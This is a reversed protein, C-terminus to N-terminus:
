KQGSAKAKPSIPRQGPWKHDKRGKESAIPFLLKALESKGMKEIIEELGDYLFVVDVELKHPGTPNQKLREKVQKKEHKLNEGLPGTFLWLSQALKTQKTIRDKAPIHLEKAPANQKAAKLWDDIMKTLHLDRVTFFPLKPEMDSAEPPKISTSALGIQLLPYGALKRSHIAFHRSKEQKIRAATKQLDLFTEWFASGFTNYLRNRLDLVEKSTMSNDPQDKQSTKNSVVSGVLSQLTDQIDILRTSDTQLWGFPQLKPNEQSMPKQNNGVNPYLSDLLKRTDVDNQLLDDVSYSSANDLVGETQLAKLLQKDLESESMDGFSDRALRAWLSRYRDTQEPKTLHLNPPQTEGDWFLCLRDWLNGRLLLGGLIVVIALAM